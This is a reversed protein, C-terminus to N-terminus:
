KPEPTKCQCPKSPNGDADVGRDDGCLLRFTPGGGGIGSYKAHTKRHLYVGRVKRIEHGCHKCKKM